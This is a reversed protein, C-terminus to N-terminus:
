RSRHRLRRIRRITRIERISIATTSIAIYLCGIITLMIRLTPGPTWLELAEGFGYVLAGLIWLIGLRVLVEQASLTRIRLGCATVFTVTALISAGFGIWRQTQLAIIETIM